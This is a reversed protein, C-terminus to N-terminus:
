PRAEEWRENDAAPYGTALRSGFDTEPSSKDGGLLGRMSNLVRRGFPVSVVEGPSRREISAPKPELKPPLQSLN